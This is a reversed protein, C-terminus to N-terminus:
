EIGAEKDTYIMAGFITAAGTYQGFPSNAEEEKLKRFDIGAAKIMKAFKKM